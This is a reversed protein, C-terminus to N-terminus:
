ALECGLASDPVEVEQVGNLPCDDRGASGQLYQYQLRTDDSLSGKEPQEGDGGRIVGDDDIHYGLRTLRAAGDPAAIYETLDSINTAKSKRGAKDQDVPIKKLIM